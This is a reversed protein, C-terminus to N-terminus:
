LRSDFPLKKEGHFDFIDTGVEAFPLDPVPSPLLPEASPKRQFEACKSCNKINEEIEGNMSPWYMMERARQKCEVICSSVRPHWLALMQKQLSPSIVIRPGKFIIGDSVALEDTEPTGFSNSRWPCMAEGTQGVM